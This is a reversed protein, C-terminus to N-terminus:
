GRGQGTLIEMRTAVGPRVTRPGCVPCRPVKLVTRTTIAPEVLNVEILEGVRWTVVWQGGFLKVLELAALDGLVSAMAPHFGVVPRGQAAAREIAEAGAPDPLHSNQRMRLCEYCATEGPIVLPGMYGLLNHLVVPLFKIKREVCLRNWERLGPMWGLDCAAVVCDIPARGDLEALWRQYPVAKRQNDDAAEPNRLPPYDVLEVFDDGPDLGAATLETTLARVLHRAVSNDGLVAIRHGSLESAVEAPRQGFHWYFVDATSEGQPVPEPTADVPAVLRRERLARVLEEVAARDPLAFSDRVDAETAGEGSLLALVTEVVDGAREGEIKLEVCGRKLVMGTGIPIAQIPLVRLREAGTNDTTM